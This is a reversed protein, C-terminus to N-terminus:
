RKIKFVIRKPHPVNRREYEVQKIGMKRALERIERAQKLSPAQGGHLFLTDGVIQGTCAWEWETGEGGETHIRVTGVIGELAEFSAEM